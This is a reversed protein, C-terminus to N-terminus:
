DAAERTQDGSNGPRSVLQRWARRGELAQLLILVPIAITVDRSRRLMSFALATQPDLGFVGFLLVYAGEQVGIAHPVIFAISRIGSVLSDIAIADGLGLNAGMFWLPLLLEVSSLIWTCCHILFSPWLAGRPALIAQITGHLSVGNEGSTGNPGNTGNTWASALRAALGDMLRAGKAQLALLAFAAGGTFILALLAPVILHNAPRYWVLLVLGLLTYPLKAAMEVALDVATSAAAFGGSVGCLTAARAGLVVGGLQSLPLAEGAADRVLRGWIFCAPHGQGTRKGLRWWACGMPIVLALHFLIIACFGGWGLRAMAHLVAGIGVRAMLYTFAVAGTALAALIAFRKM